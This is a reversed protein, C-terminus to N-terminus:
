RAASCESGGNKAVLYSFRWVNGLGVAYGVLTLVFQFRNDWVERKKKKKKGGKEEEEDGGAETVEGGGEVEKQKTDISFNGHRTNVSYEIIVKALKAPSIKLNYVHDSLLRTGLSKEAHLMAFSTETHLM